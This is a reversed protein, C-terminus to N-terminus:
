KIEVAKFEKLLKEARKKGFKKVMEDFIPSNRIREQYSKELVKIDATSGNPIIAHLGNEIGKSKNKTKIRM